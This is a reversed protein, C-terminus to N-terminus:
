TLCGFVLVAHQGRLSKTTFPEGHEDYVVVEPLRTGREPVDFQQAQVELSAVAHSLLMVISSVCLASRSM